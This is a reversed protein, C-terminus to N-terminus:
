RHRNRKSQCPTRPAGGHALHQQTKGARHSCSSPWKCWPCITTICWGLNGNSRCILSSIRPRQPWPRQSIAYAQSRKVGGRLGSWFVAQDRGTGFGRRSAQGAILEALSGKPTFEANFIPLTNNTVGRPAVGYRAWIATAAGSLSRGTSLFGASVTRNLSTRLSGGWLAAEFMSGRPLARAGAIGGALPGVLMGIRQLREPGTMRDFNNYIDIAENGYEYGTWTLLGIGVYTTPVPAFGYAMFGFYGAVPGTALALSTVGVVQSGAALYQATTMRSNFKAVAEEDPFPTAYFEASAEDMIAAATEGSWMAMLGLSLAAAALVVVEGSPDTGNAPSNLAYRYLNLDAYRPDPNIFRGSAPDYWRARNYSLNSFLDYERGAYFVNFRPLFDTNFDASLQFLLPDGFPGYEIKEYTWSGGDLYRVGIVSGQHDTLTWLVTSNAANQSDVVEVALIKDVGPAYLRLAEVAGATDLQAVQQGREWVAVTDTNLPPSSHDTYTRRTLQDFVDYTYAVKDLEYITVTGGSTPFTKTISPAGYQDTKVYRTLRTLRHRHDWEYKFLATNSVHFASEEWEVVPAPNNTDIAQFYITLFEQSYQQNLDFWIPDPLDAIWEQATEDWYIPINAVSALTTGLIKIEASVADGASNFDEFANSFSLNDITIRYAGPVWDEYGTYMRNDVINVFDDTHGGKYTNGYTWRYTLNGEADYEYTHHADEELRNHVGTVIGSGVRNGNSDYDFVTPDPNPQSGPLDVSVQELQGFNDYQNTTSTTAEAGDVSDSSKKFTQLGRPDYLFSLKKLSDSDFPNTSALATASSPLDNKFHHVLQITGNGGVQRKTSSHPTPNGAEYRRTFTALGKNGGALNRFKYDHTISKSAVNSDNQAAQVVRKTRGHSDFEYTNIFEYNTLNGTVSQVQGLLDTDYTFVIPASLPAITQSAQKLRHASDYTYDYDSIPDDAGKMKGLPTYQYNAVFSSGNGWSEQIRRGLNDYEYSIDGGNRDTSSILNGFSDYEYRRLLNSGDVTIRETKVRGLADLFYTTLNGNPDLVAERGGFVDYSYVTTAIQGASIEQAQSTVQGVGNYTFEIGSGFSALLSGNSWAQTSQNTVLGASNKRYITRLFGTAIPDGEVHIDTVQREQYSALGAEDYLARTQLGFADVTRTINGLADHFIESTTTGGEAASDEITASRLRGLDDYIYSTQLWDDAEYPNSVKTGKMTGDVNYAVKTEPRGEGPVTPDRTQWLRGLNDYAYNTILHKWTANEYFAVDVQTLNGRIDYSNTTIVNDTSSNANRESDPGTTEKLRGQKDYAYKTHQAINNYPLDDLKRAWVADRQEALEGTEIRNDAIHTGTDFNGAFLLEESVEGATNYTYYTSVGLNAGDPHDVAIPRDLKDYYTTSTRTKGAGGVQRETVSTVNGRKDYDYDIELQDGNGDVPRTEVDLRGFEDYTHSTYVTGTGSPSPTTLTKIQGDDYYEYTTVPAAAAGTPIPTTAKTLRKLADYEYRTKVDTEDDGGFRPDTETALNGHMDYTYVIIPQVSEHETQIHADDTSYGPDEYTTKILQNREDYEHEITRYTPDGEGVAAAVLVKEFRLNGNADYEYKTEPRTTSSEPNGGPAPLHERTLRGLADYEYETTFNGATENDDIPTQVSKLNGDAYYTYVTEAYSDATETLLKEKVLRDLNDYEYRVTREFEGLSPANGEAVAADNTELTLNRNDDYDYYTSLAVDTGAARTLKKLLGFNSENADEYYEYVEKSADSTDYAREIWMILGGPLSGSGSPPPTYEYKTIVGNPERVETVNGHADIEYETVRGAMDTYREPVSFKYSNSDEPGYEWVENINGGGDQKAQPYEIKTLNGRQKAQGTQTAGDYYYTTVLEELAIGDGGGGAPETMKELLGHKDREYLWVADEHITVDDNPDEPEKQDIVKPKALATVLGFRDLQYTWVNGYPDTYTARPEILDGPESEDEVGIEGTPPKRIAADEISEYQFSTLSWSSSDHNVVSSVGFAPDFNFTTIRGEPDTLHRSYNVGGLDISPGSVGQEPSPYQLGGSYSYSRGAFDDFTPSSEAFTTTLGFPDTITHLKDDIGNNNTDFYEYTTRNKNRDQHARLLGTGDFEHHGGNKTLLTFEGSQRVLNPDRYFGGDNDDTIPGHVLQNFSGDPTQFLWDSVVMVADIVGGSLLHAEIVLENNDPIYFGLSRWPQGEVILEGPTFKQNVKVTNDTWGGGWKTADHVEYTTLPHPWNLHDSLHQDPVWTAFIQYPRGATLNPITWSVSAPANASGSTTRYSGGYGGIGTGHALGYLSASDIDSDDVIQYASDPISAEYWASSGDGRFLAAGSQRAMGMEDLQDHYVGLSDSLALEDISDHILSHDYHWLSYDRGRHLLNGRVTRSRTGGDPMTMALTVKYAYHGQTESSYPEFPTTMSFRLTDETNQLESVNDYTTSSEFDSLGNTTSFTAAVSVPKQSGPIKLDVAVLPADFVDTRRELESGVTFFTVDGSEVEVHSVGNRITEPTLGTSELDTNSTDVTTLEDNDFITITAEGHSSDVLYFPANSTGYHGYKGSPLQVLDPHDLIRIRVTEDWEAISDNTPTIDITVSPRGDPIVVVGTDLVSGEYDDSTAALLSNGLQEPGALVEYYIPLDGNTNEEGRSFTFTGDDVTEGQNTEAAYADTAFVSVQDIVQIVLEGIEVFDGTGDADLFATIRQEGTVIANPDVAVAQVYTYLPGGDQWYTFMDSANIVTDAPIFNGGDPVPDINNTYGRYTDFLRLHGQPPLVPVGDVEVIAAPDSDSYDFRVRSDDDFDPHDLAWMYDSHPLGANNGGPGGHILNPTTPDIALMFHRDLIPIRLADDGGGPIYNALVNATVSDDGDHSRVNVEPSGAVDIGSYTVAGGGGLDIIIKGGIGDIDIIDPLNTGHIHIEGNSEQFVGGTFTVPDPEIPDFPLDIAALLEYDEDVDNVFSPLFSVTKGVGALLDASASVVHSAMPTILDTSRFVNITFPQLNPVGAIDYDLVLKEGDATFSNLTLTPTITDASAGEFLTAAIGNSTITDNGDGTWIYLAPAALVDIAFEEDGALDQNIVIKDDLITIVDDSAAGRAHINGSADQFVGGSFSTPTPTLGDGAVDILAVLDGEQFADATFDAQFSVSRDVGEQRNALQDVTHSMLPSGTLAGDVSRYIDINFVPVEVANIDYTIVLDHTQADASFSKLRVLEPIAVTIPLNLTNGELDTASVVLNAFGVTDPTYALDLTSGNLTPTVLDPNTNDAPSWAYTLVDGYPLDYDSIYETLDISTPQSLQIAGSAAAATLHPAQGIHYQQLQLDGFYGGDYFWYGLSVDGRDNASSSFNGSFADEPAGVSSSPRGDAGLWRNFLPYDNASVQGSWTVLAEGSSALIPLVRNSQGTPADTLEISHSTKPAGTSDFQRSWATELADGSVEFYAVVYEGGANVDIEEFIWTRFDSELRDAEEVTTEIPQDNEDLSPTGTSADFKRAMVRHLTGFGDFETWAASFTGDEAVAVSGGHQSLSVGVDSSSLMTPGWTTTSMGVEIGAAYASLEPAFWNQNNVSGWVFVAQGARNMSMSLMPNTDPGYVPSTTGSSIQVPPLWTSDSSRFSRGWVVGSDHWGVLVNDFEDVAVQPRAQQTSWNQTSLTAVETIPTLPSGSSDFRQYRLLHETLAHNSESWVVAIDGNELIQHSTQGLNHDGLVLEIPSGVSPLAELTFNESSATIGATTTVDVKDEQTGNTMDWGRYTVLDHFTGQTVAKLRLETTDAPLLLANGEDVSDIATWAGGGISYEVAAHSTDIHTIAIGDEGQAIGSTASDVMDAVSFTTFNPGTDRGKIVESVGRTVIKDTYSSSPDVSVTESGDHARIHVASIPDVPPTFSRDFTVTQLNVLHSYTLRIDNDAEIQITDDFESGHVHLVDDAATYFVGGSFATRRQSLRVRDSDIVALLRYQEDTDALSAPISIPETINSTNPAPTISQSFLLEDALKGDFSKYIEVTFPDTTVGFHDFTLQLDRGDSHFEHINLDAALLQREELTEYLLRQGQLSRDRKKKRRVKRFGLKTLTNTWSSIPLRV